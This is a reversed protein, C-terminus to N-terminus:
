NAQMLNIIKCFFTAVLFTGKKNTESFIRLDTKKPTYLKKEDVSIFKKKLLSNLKRVVTARPIGTVESLSMANIGAVPHNLADELYQERSLLKTNKLRFSKQTAIVGWIHWTEVDNFVKKWNQVLPLQMEYFLKWCHTFNKRMHLEISESSLKKDLDGNKSLNESIKSLLYSVNVITKNPKQFNFATRNLIIKKKDRIIAGIKELELIKRRTTEKSINLEKGVDVINFNAIELQNKSYYSDFNLKIFNESLFNLTKHVLYQIIIFKDHDHFTKYSGRLWEMHFNFLFKALQSYNKSISNLIQDETLQKSVSPIATPMFKWIYVKFGIQVCNM